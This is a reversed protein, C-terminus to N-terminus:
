APSTGANEVRLVEVSVEDLGQRSRDLADRLKQGMAQKIPYINSILPIVIGTILGIWVTSSQMPIQLSINLGSHLGVQAATTFLNLLM